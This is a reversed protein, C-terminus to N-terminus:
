GSPVSTGGLKGAVFPCLCAARRLLQVRSPGQRQSLLMSDEKLGRQRARPVLSNASSRGPVPLRRLASAPRLTPASVTGLVLGPPGGSDGRAEATQSHQAKQTVGKWSGCSGFLQVKGGLNMRKEAAEGGDVRGLHLCTRHPRAGRFGRGQPRQGGPAKFGFVRVPNEGPVEKWLMEARVKGTHLKTPTCISNSSLLLQIYFRALFWLEKQFRWGCKQEM